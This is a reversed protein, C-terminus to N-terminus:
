CLLGGGSAIDAAMSLTADQRKNSTKCRRWLSLQRWATSIGSMGEHMMGAYKYQAPILESLAYRSDGNVALVTDVDAKAHEATAPPM